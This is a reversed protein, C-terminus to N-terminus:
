NNEPVAYKIYAKFFQGDKAPVTVTLDTTTSDFVLEYNTSPADAFDELTASAIATLTARMPSSKAESGNDVALPTEGNLVQVKIDWAGATESEAIDVIKLTPKASLTNLEQGFQYDMYANKADNIEAPTANPFATKLQDATFGALDGTVGAAGGTTAASATVTWSNGSAALTNTTEAVFNWSDAATGGFIVESTGAVADAVQVSTGSTAPTKTTGGDLSYWVASVDSDWTLTFDIGSVQGPPLPDVNSVLLDDVLGEGKFGVASLSAVKNEYDLSPFFKKENILTLVRPWCWFEFFTTDQLPVALAEASVTPESAVVASGDIYVSFGHLTLSSGDGEGCYCVDNFASVTLRYWTNTSVKTGTEYDTRTNVFAGENLSLANATVCLVGNTNMWVILKSGEEVTPPDESPTFQVLTDVFLGGNYPVGSVGDPVAVAGTTPFKTPKEDQWSYAQLMRWLTSSNSVKLYKSGVTTAEGNKTPFKNSGSPVNDEYALIATDDAAAGFWVAATSDEKGYVNAGTQPTSLTDDGLTGWDELSEEVYYTPDAQAVGALGLAAVSALALKSFKM